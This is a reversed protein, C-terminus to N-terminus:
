RQNAPNPGWQNDAVSDGCWWVILLIIGVCPILCMFYYFGSKGIDHLRRIGLALMPIFIALSALSLMITMPAPLARSLVGIVVDVIVCFLYGWWFESKTSRGSFNVYNSFFLKVAEGFSVSKAQPAPGQANNTQFDSM